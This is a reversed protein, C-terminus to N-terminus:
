TVKLGVTVVKLKTTEAMVLAAKPAKLFQTAGRRFDNGGKKNMDQKLMNWVNKGQM